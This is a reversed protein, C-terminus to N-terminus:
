YLLVFFTSYSCCFVLQMVATDSVDDWHDSEYRKKKLGPELERLFAEEEEETIFSTRVEVHSVLKQVLQPSSGCIQAGNQDTFLGGPACSSLLRQLCTYVPPKRIQRLVTLFLKTMIMFINCTLNAFQYKLEKTLM